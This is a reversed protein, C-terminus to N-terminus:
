EGGDTGMTEEAAAAAAWQVFLEVPHAGGVARGGKGATNVDERVVHRVAGRGGNATEGASPVRVSPSENKGSLWNRRRFPADANNRQLPCIGILTRAAHM